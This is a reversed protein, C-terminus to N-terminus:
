AHKLYDAIKKVLSASRLQEETRQEQEQQKQLAYVEKQKYASIASRKVEKIALDLIKELTPMLQEIISEKSTTGVGNDSLDTQKLLVSRVYEEYARAYMITPNKERAHMIEDLARNIEGQRIYKDANKLYAIVETLHEAGIIKQSINQM